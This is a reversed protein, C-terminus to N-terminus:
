ELAGNVAQRGLTFVAPTPDDPVTDVDIPAQEATGMAGAGATRFMAVLNAVRGAGLSNSGVREGPTHSRASPGFTFPCRM